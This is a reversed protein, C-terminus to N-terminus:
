MRKNGTNLSKVTNSLVFAGGGKKICIRAFFSCFTCDFTGVVEIPCGELKQEVWGFDGTVKNFRSRYKKSLYKSRSSFSSMAM